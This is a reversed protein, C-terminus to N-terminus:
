SIDIDRGIYLEFKKHCKDCVLLFSGYDNVGDPYWIKNIKITNNCHPCYSLILSSETM